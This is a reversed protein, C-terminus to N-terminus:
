VVDESHDEKADLVGLAHCRDMDKLNAASVPKGSQTLSLNTVQNRWKKRQPSAATIPVNRHTGKAEVIQL